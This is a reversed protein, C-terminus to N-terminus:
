SIICISIVCNIPHDCVIHEPQELLSKIVPLYYDLKVQIHICTQVVRLYGFICARNFLEERDIALLGLQAVKLLMASILQYEITRILEVSKEVVMIGSLRSVWNPVGSSINISGNSMAELFAFM